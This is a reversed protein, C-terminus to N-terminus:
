ATLSLFPLWLVPGAVCVLQSGSVEVFVNEDVHPKSTTPTLALPTIHKSPLSFHFEMRAEETVSGHTFESPSRQHLLVGQPSCVMNRQGMADSADVCDERYLLKLDPLAYISIYGESDM